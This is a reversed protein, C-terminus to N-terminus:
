PLNGTVFRIRFHAAKRDLRAEELALEAQLLLDQAVQVELNSAIKQKYEEQLLRFNEAAADVEKQLSKITEDLSHWGHYEQRVQLNVDIRQARLEYEAQRVRSKADSVRARTAGGEFLNLEAELLVDWDVEESSGDRHGWLNGTAQLTPLWAGMEVDVNAEAAKV